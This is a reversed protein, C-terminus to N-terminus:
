YNYGDFMLCRRAYTECDLKSHLIRTHTHTQTRMLIVEESHWAIFSNFVTYCLVTCYLVISLLIYEFKYDFFGQRSPSCTLELDIRRTLQSHTANQHCEDQLCKSSLNLLKCVVEDSSWVITSSMKGRFIKLKAFTQCVFHLLLTKIVRHHHTCKAHTNQLIYPFHTAHTIFKGSCTRHTKQVEKTVRTFSDM